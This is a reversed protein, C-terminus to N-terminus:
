IELGQWGRKITIAVFEDWDLGADSRVIIRHKSQEIIQIKQSKPQIVVGNFECPLLINSGGGLILYNNGLEYNKLYHYSKM